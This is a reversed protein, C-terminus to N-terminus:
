VARRCAVSWCAPVHAQRWENMGKSACVAGGERGRMRSLQMLPGPKVAVSCVSAQKRRPPPYAAWLRVACQLQPASAVRSAFSRQM